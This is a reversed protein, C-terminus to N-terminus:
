FNVFRDVWRPLANIVYASFADFFAFVAGSVLVMVLVVITMAITDKRSPWVIKKLEMVVEDSLVLVKKNLQLSFFTLVALGVQLGNRVVESGFYRAFWGWTGSFTDLLLGVVFFVVIAATLFSMTLIKKNDNEVLLDGINLSSAPCSPNSGV